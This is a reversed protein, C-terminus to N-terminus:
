FRKSITEDGRKAQAIETLDSAGKEKGDTTEIARCDSLSASTRKRLGLIVVRILITIFYGIQLGILALAAGIFAEVDFADTVAKVSLYALIGVFSVLAFGVFRLGVGLASGLLIALYLIWM